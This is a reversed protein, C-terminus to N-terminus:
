TIQGMRRLYENKNQIHIGETYRNQIEFVDEIRLLIKM